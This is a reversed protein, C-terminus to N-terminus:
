FLGKFFRDAQMEETAILGPAFREQSTFKAEYEAVIMTGMEM